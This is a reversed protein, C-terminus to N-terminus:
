LASSRTVPKRPIRNSVPPRSAQMEAGVVENAPMETGRAVPEKAPLEAFTGPSGSPRSAQLEKRDPKLDDSHLQAKESQLNDTALKEQSTKRKRRLTFVALAVFLALGVFAGVVIGAISGPKLSDPVASPSATAAATTTATSAITSQASTALSGTGSLIEIYIQGCHDGQPTDYLNYYAGSICQYWIASSGLALSNNECLSFGATYTANLPPPRLFQFQGNSAIFGTRGNEDTLIGNYLSIGLPTNSQRQFITLKFLQRPPQSTRSPPCPKLLDCETRYNRLYRFLRRLMRTSVVTRYPQCTCVFPYYRTGPDTSTCYTCICRVHSSM